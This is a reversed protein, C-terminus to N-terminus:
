FKVTKEALKKEVYQIAENISEEKTANTTDIIYASSAIKLPSNKRFIDAHDRSELEKKVTEIPVYKGMIAYDIARRKARENADVTVFIKIRANPFVITTIDRGEMVINKSEAYKYQFTRTWVRIDEIKSVKAVNNSILPTKLENTIDKGNLEVKVTNTEKNYTFDLKTNKLLNILPTYTDPINEDFKDINLGNKLAILTIARYISGTDLYDYGFHKAIAKSIVSKGSGSLGDVAIVEYKTKM